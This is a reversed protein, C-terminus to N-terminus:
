STLDHPLGPNSEEGSLWVTESETETGKSDFWLAEPLAMPQAVESQPYAPAAM